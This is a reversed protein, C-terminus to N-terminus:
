FVFDPVVTCAGEYDLSVGLYAAECPNRYTKGDCGCVPREKPGCSYPEPQCIGTAQPHTQLCQGTPTQCYLGGRCIVSISPGCAVGQVAVSVSDSSSGERPALVSAAVLLSGLAMGAAGHLLNM